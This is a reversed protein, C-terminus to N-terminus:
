YIFIYIYIYSPIYIYIHRLCRVDYCPSPFHVMSILWKGILFIMKSPGGAHGGDMVASATRRHESRAFFRPHRPWSPPLLSLGHAMTQSNVLGYAEHRTHKGVHSIYIHDLLYAMCPAFPYNFHLHSFEYIWIFCLSMGMTLHAHISQSPSKHSSPLHIM